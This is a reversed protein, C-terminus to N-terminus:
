AFTFGLIVNSHKKIMKASTQKIKSEEIICIMLLLDKQIQFRKVQYLSVSTVFSDGAEKKLEIYYKSSPSLKKKQFINGDLFNCVEVRFISAHTIKLFNKVM